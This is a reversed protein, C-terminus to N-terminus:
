GFTAERLVEDVFFEWMDLRAGVINQKINVKTLPFDSSFEAVEIGRLRGSRVADRCYNQFSHASSRALGSDFSNEM